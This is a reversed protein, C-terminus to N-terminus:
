WKNDREYGLKCLMDQYKEKFLHKHRESFHNKWDGSIGKRYHHKKDEAGSKRGGSINKFDKKYVIELARHPTIKSLSCSFKSPFLKFQNLHHYIDYKLSDYRTNDYKVINLHDCIRLVISYPNLVLDEFKVELINHHDYEWSYMADFIKIEIGDVILNNLYKITFSLGDEFELKELEKRYYNLEPWFRDSHSYKHSYYASVVVDRPDRIVHFGKIKDILPRIFTIDANTYSFFDVNSKTIENGLNFNFMKPSHYHIHKLRLYDSISNIISLLWTTAAKHHGFFALRSAFRM